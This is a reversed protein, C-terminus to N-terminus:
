SKPKFTLFFRYHWHLLIEPIQHNDYNVDSYSGINTIKLESDWFFGDPRDATLWSNPSLRVPVDAAQAAALELSRLMSKSNSTRTSISLPLHMSCGVMCVSCSSAGKMLYAGQHGLDGLM